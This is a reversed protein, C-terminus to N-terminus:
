QAHIVVAAQTGTEDGSEVLEVVHLLHPGELNGLQHAIQFHINRNVQRTISGTRAAIDKGIPRCRNLDIVEAVGAGEAGVVNIVDQCVTM